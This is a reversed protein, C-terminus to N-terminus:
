FVEKKWVQKDFFVLSYRYLLFVNLNALKTNIFNILTMPERATVDQLKIVFREDNITNTTVYNQIKNASLIHLDALFTVHM